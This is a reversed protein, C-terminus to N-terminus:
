EAVWLSTGAFVLKRDTNDVKLSLDGWDAFDALFYIM